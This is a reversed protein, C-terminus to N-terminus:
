GMRPIYEDLPLLSVYLMYRVERFLDLMGSRIIWAHENLEKGCGERNMMCSKGAQM